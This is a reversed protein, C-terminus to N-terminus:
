DALSRRWREHRESHVDLNLAGNTAKNLVKLQLKGLTSSVNITLKIKDFREGPDIGASQCMSNLLDRLPLKGDKLPIEIRAINDTPKVQLQPVASILLTSFGLGFLVFMSLILKFM